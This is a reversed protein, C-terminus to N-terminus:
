QREPRDPVRIGTLGSPTGTMRILIAPLCWAHTNSVWRYIIVGAPLPRHPGPGCFLHEALRSRQGAKGDNYGRLSAATLSNVTEMHTLTLVTGADAWLIQMADATLVGRQISHTRCILPLRKSLHNIRAICRPKKHPGAENSVCIDVGLYKFSKCYPISPLRPGAHKRTSKTAAWNSKKINLDPEM